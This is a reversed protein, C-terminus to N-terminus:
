GNPNNSSVRIFKNNAEFRSSVRLFWSTEPRLDAQVGSETTQTVDMSSPQLSHLSEMDANMDEDGQSMNFYLAGNTRETRMEQHSDNRLDSFNAGTNRAIQKLVHENYAEKSAM